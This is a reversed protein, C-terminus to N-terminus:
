SKGLSDKMMVDVKELIRVVEKGEECTVPPEADNKVAEVFKEILISHGNRQRGLLVNTAACATHALIQYGQSINDLAHGTRSEGGISNYKVLIGGNLNVYLNMRSGFIDLMMSDKNWNCSEILTGIGKKGNLIVRLEDAAVWEFSSFKRAHVAEPEALGIFARALYIPHPLMEGFVGCPLKHYWHDKNKLDPKDKPWSDRISIGTVEGLEGNSVMSEAKLIVPMFLANHVVCLKVHNSKSAKIMEDTDKTSLAMPKEVLVHCGAEMAKISLAAHTRPSTCIHLIDLKEKTLMESLDAYYRNAHFREATKKALSENVDCVAALKVDKTKCLAPIHWEEAVRGCGVIGVRLTREM